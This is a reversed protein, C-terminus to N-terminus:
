LNGYLTVKLGRAGIGANVIDITIEADDPVSISSGTLTGPNVATVSTKESADINLMNSTTAGYISTGNIKIDITTTTSGAVSLSARPVKSSDITMAVPSRFTVAATGTSFGAGEAVVPVILDVANTSSGGGGLNGGMGMTRHDTYSVATDTGTIITYLPIAGATFGTTNVSVVGSSSAQVYNTASATLTLTGNAIPTPVGSLNISGGYYGWTLGACASARRGYLTAPSAADFLENATAEKQAQSQAILDLLTTSNSM